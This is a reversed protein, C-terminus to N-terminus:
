DLNVVAGDNFGWLACLTLAPLGYKVTRVSGDGWLCPSGSPHPGGHIGEFGTTQIKSANRRAPWGTAPGTSALNNLDHNADALM